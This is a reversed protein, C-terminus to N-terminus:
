NEWVSFDSIPPLLRIAKQNSHTAPPQETLAKFWPERRVFDWTDDTQLWAPQVGMSLANTLHERIETASASGRVLASVKAILYHLEGSEQGLELAKLLHDRRQRLQKENSAGLPSAVTDTALGRNLYALGRLPLPVEGPEAILRDLLAAAEEYNQSQELLVALNNLAFLDTNPATIAARYLKQADADHRRLQHLYGLQALLAHSPAPVQQIGAIARDLYADREGLASTQQALRLCVISEASRVRPDRPGEEALQGLQVLAKTM